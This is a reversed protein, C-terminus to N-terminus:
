CYTMSMKGLCYICTLRMCKIAACIEKVNRQNNVMQIEEERMFQRSMDKPWKEMSPNTKKENIKLLKKKTDPINVRQRNYIYCIKKEYQRKCKITLNSIQTHVHAQIHCECTHQKSTNM